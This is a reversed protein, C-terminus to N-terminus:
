RSRAKRLVINRLALGFYKIDTVIPSRDYADLYRLESLEIEELNGPIDAYFPPILGPKYKIRREQLEKSYLSFYHQSLPRVGVIKMDGKFLNIVMPLEDLWVRRCFRGWSTIRFDHRFKGGEKLDYLRYVYEQLFESYPHMTRLKYVRYIKGGKGIRNLAILAGYNSNTQQLPASYKEAEICLNNGIFSEKRILFGARCIRGLAEARSIVHPSTGLLLLYIRRTLRLKPLIRKFFFDISYILYNLVPPYRKLIRKKRQNKTELCCIMRGGQKLKGNVEDLLSDIDRIRNMNRVNVIYDYDGQPLNAINFPTGTSLVASKGNLNGAAMAIISCATTEGLERAIKEKTIREQETLAAPHLTSPGTEGVMEYESLNREDDDTQIVESEQVVAKRFALYITGAILELLTAMGVTGLVITRSYYYERFIYMLMTALALSILNSTVVRTFLTRLNTIKGRTMKGNIVSVALWIVVLTIFFPLHSPLYARFSAPKMWIWFLFCIALILMNALLSLM